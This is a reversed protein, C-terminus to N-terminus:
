EIIVKGDECCSIILNNSFTGETFGCSVQKAISINNYKIRLSQEDPMELSYNILKIELSRSNGQGLICVTNITNAIEQAALRVRQDELSSDGKGKIYMLSVISLVLMSMFIIFVILFELSIQGKM